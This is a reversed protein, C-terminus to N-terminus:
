PRYGGCDCCFDVTDAHGSPNDCECKKVELRRIRDHLAKMAARVCDILPQRKYDHNPMCQGCAMEGDDGYVGGHGHGLWLSERIEFNNPATPFRMKMAMGPATRGDVDVDVVIAGCHQCWRVVTREQEPGNALIVVLDHACTMNSEKAPQGDTNRAWKDNERGSEGGVRTM